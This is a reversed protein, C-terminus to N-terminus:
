QKYYINIYKRIAEIHMPYFKEPNSNIIEKLKRLSIWNINKSEDSEELKNGEVECLFFHTMIPYNKGLNQSSYFCEYSIVEYNNLKTIISKEEEHIHTVNYGTEEWVERRLADFINEFERIKGGPIELLGDELVNNKWREQILLFKDGETEMTILATVAPIMFKEM